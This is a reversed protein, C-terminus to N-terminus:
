QTAELREELEAVTEPMVSRQAVALTLRAASPRPMEALIAAFNREPMREAIQIQTTLDVEALIEAADGADMGRYLNVIRELDAEEQESLVGILSQVEDRLDRLETIRGDVRGELATIMAERTDLETEFSELERRRDQLRTLLQLENPTGRSEALRQLASEGQPECSEPGSAEASPLAPADREAEYALDDESPTQEPDDLLESPDFEAAYAAWADPAGNVLGIAKLAFLGGMLIALVALIRVPERM